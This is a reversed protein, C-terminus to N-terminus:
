ATVPEETDVDLVVGHSEIDEVGPAGIFEAPDASEVLAKIYQQFDRVARTEESSLKGIPTFEIRAFENGASNSVRELTLRVKVGWWPTRGNVLTVITKDWSRASSPPVSVVTPLMDGEKVLFLARQDKCAAGKGGKLDTGMQSMPCTKCTGGPNRDAKAGGPAFLGGQLPTKGDHSICDPALGKPEPDVWFARQKRFWAVIGEIAKVGTEEGDVVVTWLKGDGSPVKVRPLDRPSLEVDELAEAMLAALEADPAIAPYATAFEQPVAVTEGSHRLVIDTSTTM